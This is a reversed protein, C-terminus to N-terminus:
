VTDVYSKRKGQGIAGLITSHSVKFREALARAGFKRSYPVYCERICLVNERTLKAQLNDTGKKQKLLGTSCAHILNESGTVWELNSVQNNSQDGDIHNIEPKNEPNPIYAKAVLRHILLSKWTGNRGGIKTCIYCRIKGNARVQKTPKLFQNTRHSWVQGNETVSFLNEYGEVPKM